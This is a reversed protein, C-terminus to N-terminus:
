RQCLRAYPCYDCKKLNETMTFSEDQNFFKEITQRLQFEYLVRIKEFDDVFVTLGNLDKVKLSDEFDGSYMSRVPYVAPRVSVELSDKLIVSCYMLIQFWADNRDKKNEDFLSEVSTITMDIKGTKYDTIRLVGGVKDLRDIVGGIQVNAKRNNYDIELESSIRHELEVIELPILTSDKRIIWQIYSNLINCLILDNGSMISKKKNYFKEDITEAIIRDVLYTNKIISDFIERSLITKKFPSYIKELASHLLEGFMAPDIERTVKEPEKM